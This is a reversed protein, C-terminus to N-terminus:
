HRSLAVYCVCVRSPPRRCHKSEVCSSSNQTSRRQSSLIASSSTGPLSNCHHDPRHRRVCGLRIRNLSSPGNSQLEAFEFEGSMLSCAAESVAATRIRRVQAESTGILGHKHLRTQLIDSAAVNAQRSLLGCDHRVITPVSGSICWRM